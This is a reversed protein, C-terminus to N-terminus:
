RPRHDARRTRQVVLDAEGNRVLHITAFRNEPVATRDEWVHEGTRLRLCRLVGRGDAGYIHEGDIMPTSILCHLAKKDPVEQRRRHWLKQVQAEDQSLELLLSGKHAESM